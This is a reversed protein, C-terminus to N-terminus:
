AAKMASAHLQKALYQRLAEDVVDQYKITKRGTRYVNRARVYAELLRKTDTRIQTGWKQWEPEVDIDRLIAAELADIASAHEDRVKAGSRLRPAPSPTAAVPAQDLDAPEQESLGPETRDEDHPVSSTAATPRQRAINMVVSQAASAPRQSGFDALNPRKSKPM